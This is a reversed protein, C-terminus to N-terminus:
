TKHQVDNTYEEREEGLGGGKKEEGKGEKDWFMRAAGCCVM